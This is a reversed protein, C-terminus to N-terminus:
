RSSRRDREGVPLFAGSSAAKDLVAASPGTPDHVGFAVDAQAQWVDFV